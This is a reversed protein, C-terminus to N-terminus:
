VLDSLVYVCLINRHAVVLNRQDPAVLSAVVSAGVGSAARSTV